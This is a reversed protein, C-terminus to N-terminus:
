RPLVFAGPLGAGAAAAIVAGPAVSPGPMVVVVEVTQGASQRPRIETRGFAAFREAARRANDPNGFTGVQVAGGTGVPAPAAVTETGAALGAAAVHAPSPPAREAYSSAFGTRMILPALPDYVEGVVVPPAFSPLLVFPDASALQPQAVAGYRPAPAVRPPPAAAAMMFSGPRQFSAFLTGGGRKGPGQYSALLTKQDRGDMRAPGIYDVKVRATGAAKFDLMDAVTSSLDIIRDRAFPGRDNVRVTMSRGNELNTVLVYSPLPLTPHAATLGAVDYVEGNATLRGHFASGYWSALGTESYNQDVRPVYRKGAVKYPKGVVVRGGGKPVPANAAVVRPSAPGYQKQSFYEKSNRTVATPAATCSALVVAL